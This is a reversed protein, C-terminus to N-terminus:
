RIGSESGRKELGLRSLGAQICASRQPDPGLLKDAETEMLQLGLVLDETPVGRSRLLNDVWTVYDAFMDPKGLAVAPALFEVNYRMDQLCKARGSEGYKETLQPRILYLRDTIAKALAEKNELLQQDQTM